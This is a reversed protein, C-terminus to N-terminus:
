ATTQGHQDLVARITEDLSTLYSQNMLADRIATLTAEAKARRQQEYKWGERYSTRENMLARYNREQQEADLEAQDLRAYLQDLGDSTIHDIGPRDTPQTM